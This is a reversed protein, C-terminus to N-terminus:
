EIEFMVENRRLFPLMWPPNYFAYKVLGITIIQHTEIYKKLKTEHEAINEDSNRGAFRIAVFKKPKVARLNINDNNPKPLSKMNYEAPMIFNIRWTLGDGQQEVPKTMAITCSLRQEVPATMAIDQAVKNNGFIYDALPYFGESIAEKRSGEIEVEAIIMNPYNRIEIDGDSTIVTYKPTEVNSMIPGVLVMGIMILILIALIIKWRKKM